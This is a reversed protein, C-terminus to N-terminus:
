LGAISFPLAKLKVVSCRQKGRGTSKSAVGGTAGNSSVSMPANSDCSAGLAGPAGFRSATLSEPAFLASSLVFTVVLKDNVMGPTVEPALTCSNRSPLGTALPTAEPELM